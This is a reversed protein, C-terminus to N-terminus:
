RKLDRIFNLAMERPTLWRQFQAPEEGDANKSEELHRYGGYEYPETKDNKRIAEAFAITRIKAKAADCHSLPQHHSKCFWIHVGHVVMLPDGTTDCKVDYDREALMSNTDHERAHETIGVAKKWDLDAIEKPVQARM